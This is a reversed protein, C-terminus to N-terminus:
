ISWSVWDTKAVNMKKPWMFKWLTTLYNRSYHTFKLYLGLLQKNWHYFGPVLWALRVVLGALTQWQTLLYHQFMLFATSSLPICCMRQQACVNFKDTCFNQLHRSVWSFLRLGITFNKWLCGRCSFCSLTLIAEKKFLIGLLIQDASPFASSGIRNVSYCPIRKKISNSCSCHVHETWVIVLSVLM